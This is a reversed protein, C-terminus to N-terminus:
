PNKKAGNLSRDYEFLLRSILETKSLHAQRALKVLLNYETKTWSGGFKRNRLEKPKENVEIM